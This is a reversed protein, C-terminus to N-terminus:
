RRGRLVIDAAAETLRGGARDLLQHILYIYPRTAHLSTGYGDYWSVTWGGGREPVIEQRPYSMPPSDTYLLTATADNTSKSLAESLALEPARDNGPCDGPSKRREM